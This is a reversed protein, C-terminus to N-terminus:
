SGKAQLRVEPTSARLYRPALTHADDREGALLRRRGLRAVTGPRPPSDEALIGREGLAEVLAARHPGAVGAVVAPLPTGRLRQTLEGIPLLMEEARPELVGDKWQYVATYVDAASASILACVLAAPPVPHEAAIAHLTHVGALPLNRAYALAKAATVGIRLGTFSGPGVSVAIGELAGVELGATALVERVHPVLYRSLEMRHRFSLEALVGAEDVVAVGAVDGSTEIGLVRM